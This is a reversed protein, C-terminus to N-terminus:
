RSPNSLCPISIRGLVMSNNVDFAAEFNARNVVKDGIMLLYVPDYGGNLLIRM